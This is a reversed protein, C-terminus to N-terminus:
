IIVQAEQLGSRAQGCDVDIPYQCPYTFLKVKDNFLLGDPCLKDEPVGDTCEIYADCQGAVSYRGNREECKGSFPKALIPTDQETQKLTGGNSGNGNFPNVALGIFM